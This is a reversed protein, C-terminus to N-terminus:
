IVDAFRPETSRFYWLGVVLLVVTGVMAPILLQADPSRGDILVTRFSGVLGTMPNLLLVDGLRERAQRLPYLVPTVFLWLQVLFPVALRIDRAFVNMASGLLAVGVVLPVELLLLLPAWLATVPLGGGITVALVVFAASAVLLDVFSLGVMSLPLVARPFPLRTVMQISGVISPIGQALSNAFFTWPVLGAAAFLVYPVDGTNVRTVGNFLITGVGLTALPPLLAWAFGVFSQRYRLQYQRRVLTLLLNRHTWLRKLM